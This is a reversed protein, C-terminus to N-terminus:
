ARLALQKGPPVSESPAPWDSFETGTVAEIQQNDHQFVRNRGASKAAYLASDARAILSGPTDGDGVQAVGGSVTIPLKQDILGRIRDALVSAGVLDTQPLVVVFEEGGFRAVMDTERVCDDLNQALDRLVRDGQPHGHQENLGKFNDIDFLIISFSTQYRSKSAFLNNFTEDMARRNSVGTLPDTRVDTFTMLLHTQQRIEDYAQAIEGSLKMTPRLIQVAEECLQQWADGDHEKGLRGVREKFSLISTLHQALSNRVHNSIAELERIVSKARKLERRAQVLEGSPATRRRGFVYGLAAVAGLAVPLPIGLVSYDMSIVQM